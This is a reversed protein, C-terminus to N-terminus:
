LVIVAPYFDKQLGLHQMIDKQEAFVMGFDLKGHLEAAVTKYIM